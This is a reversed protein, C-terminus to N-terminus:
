SYGPPHDGGDFGKLKSFRAVRKMMDKRAIGKRPLQEKFEMM